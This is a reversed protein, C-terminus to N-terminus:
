QTHMNIAWFARCPLPSNTISTKKGVLTNKKAWHLNLALVRCHQIWYVSYPMRPLHINSLIYLQPKCLLGLQDCPPWNCTCAHPSICPSHHLTPINQSCSKEPEDFCMHIVCCSASIGMNGDYIPLTENRIMRSGRSSFKKATKAMFLLNICFLPHM